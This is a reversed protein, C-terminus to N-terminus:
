FWYRRLPLPVGLERALRRTSQSLNPSIPGHTRHVRAAAAARVDSPPWWGSLDVAFRWPYGHRVADLHMYADRLSVFDVGLLSDLRVLHLLYDNLLAAAAPDADKDHSDSTRGVAAQSFYQRAGCSLCELCPWYGDDDFRNDAHACREAGGIWRGFEPPHQQEWRTWRQWVTNNLM